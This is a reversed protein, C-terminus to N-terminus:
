CSCSKGDIIVFDCEVKSIQSPDKEVSECSSFESSNSESSSSIDIIKSPIQQQTPPESSPTPPESSTDSTPKSDSLKTLDYTQPQFTYM